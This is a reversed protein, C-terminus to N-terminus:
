HSVAVARSLWYLLLDSETQVDVDDTYKIGHRYLLNGMYAKNTIIPPIQVNAISYPLTVKTRSYNGYSLRRHISIDTTTTSTADYVIITGDNSKTFYPTSVPYFVSGSDLSMINDTNSLPTLATDNLITLPYYYLTPGNMYVGSSNTVFYIGPDGKVYCRVAVKVGDINSIPVNVIETSNWTSGNYRMVCISANSSDKPQWVYGTTKNIMGILEFCGSVIRESYTCEVGALKTITPTTIETDFLYLEAKYNTVKSFRSDIIFAIGDTNFFSKNSNSYCSVFRVESGSLDVSSFQTNYVLECTITLDVKYELLFVSISAGNSSLYINFLAPDGKYSAVYYAGGPKYNGDIFNALIRRGDKLIFIGISNNETEEFNAEDCLSNIINHSYDVEDQTHHFIKDNFNKLVDSSIIQEM